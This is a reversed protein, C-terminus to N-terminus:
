DKAIQSACGPLLLIYIKNPFLNIPLNVPNLCFILGYTRGFLPKSGNDRNSINEKGKQNIDNRHLASKIWCIAPKYTSDIDRLSM